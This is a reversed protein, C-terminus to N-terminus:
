GGSAARGRARLRIAVLNKLEMLIDDREHGRFRDELARLEEELREASVPEPPRQNIPNTM